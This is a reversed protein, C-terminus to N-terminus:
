LGDLKDNREMITEAQALLAARLNKVMVKMKRKKM